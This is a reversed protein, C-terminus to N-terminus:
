SIVTFYSFWSISIYWIWLTKRHNTHMHWTYIGTHANKHSQTHACQTVVYIITYTIHMNCALTNM